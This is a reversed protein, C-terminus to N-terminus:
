GGTKDVAMAGRRGGLTRVQLTSSVLGLRGQLCRSIRGGLGVGDSPVGRICETCYLATCHLVYWYTRNCYPDLGDM